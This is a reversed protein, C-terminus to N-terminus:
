LELGAALSVLLLSFPISVAATPRWTFNGLKVISVGVRTNCNQLNVWYNKHNFVSEIALFADDTMERKTGTFPELFFPETVDRTGPLILV